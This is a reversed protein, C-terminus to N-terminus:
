TVSYIQPRMIFIPGIIGNASLVGYAVRYTVNIPSWPNILSVQLKSFESLHCWAENSSLILTLEIEGNYVGHIHLNVVNETKETYLTFNTFWPQRM